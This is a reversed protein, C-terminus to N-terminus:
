KYEEQSDNIQVIQPLTKSGAIVGIKKNILISVNGIKM